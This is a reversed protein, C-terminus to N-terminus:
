LRVVPRPGVKVTDFSYGAPQAAIAKDAAAIVREQENVGSLADPKPEPEDPEDDM